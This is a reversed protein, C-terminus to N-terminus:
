GQQETLKIVGQTQWCFRPLELCSCRKMGNGVNGSCVQLQTEGVLGSPHGLWPLSLSLAQGSGPQLFLMLEQVSPVEGLEQQQLGPQVPGQLAGVCGPSGRPCLIGGAGLAQSSQGPTRVNGFCSNWRTPTKWPCTGPAQFQEAKPCPTLLGSGPVLAATQSFDLVVGRYIWVTPHM